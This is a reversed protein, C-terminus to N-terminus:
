EAEWCDVSFDGGFRQTDPKGRRPKNMKERTKNKRLSTDPHHNHIPQRYKLKEVQNNQQM